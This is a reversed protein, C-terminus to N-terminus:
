GGIPVSLSPFSVTEVIYQPGVGVLDDVIQVQLEADLLQILDHVLLERRPFLLDDVQPVAQVAVRRLGLPLDGRGHVM